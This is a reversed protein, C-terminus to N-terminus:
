KLCIEGDQKAEKKIFRSEKLKLDGRPEASKSRSSTEERPIKRKGEGGEHTEQWGMVSM